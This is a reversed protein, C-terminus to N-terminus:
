LSMHHCKSFNYVSVICEEDRRTFGQQHQAMKTTEMRTGIKCAEVCIYKKVYEVTASVHFQATV